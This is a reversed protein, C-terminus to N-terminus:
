AHADRGNFKINTLIVSTAVMSASADTVTDPNTNIDEFQDCGTLLTVTLILVLSIFKNINKMNINRNLILM